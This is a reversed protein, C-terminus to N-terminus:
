ALIAKKSQLDMSYLAADLAADAPAGPMLEQLIWRQSSEAAASGWGYVSPM